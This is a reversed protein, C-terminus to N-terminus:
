TASHQYLKVAGTDLLNGGARMWALFAVQGLKAYASDELRFLTFERVDRIAYSRLNGFAITKANAAPTAMDNNIYVPYDLLQPLEGGIGPMWIPRGSTDKLKRVLKRMTQSMMWGPAVEPMAAQKSPMGLCAEDVSDALDALDDYIITTTQGTTGTKGVSAAAVLGTPEGSGTGITFKQNQARGIRAVARQGIVAAIDTASDQLLEIPVTFVKSSFKYATMSRNGFTMDAGTATANQVLLEGVEATGDSTPMGLDAGSSTTFEQAVQRMWGYGKAMSLLESAVLGGVSYGGESGTTTSLTANIRGREGPTMRSEPTRAYLEFDQRQRAWQMPPSGGVARRAEIMAQTHEADDLLADFAAQDDASWLRDGKQALLHRAARQRVNVRDQLQNITYM